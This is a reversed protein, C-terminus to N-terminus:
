AHREQTEGTGPDPNTLWEQSCEKDQEGSIEVDLLM